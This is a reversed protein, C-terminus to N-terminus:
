SCFLLVTKDKILRSNFFTGTSINLMVYIKLIYILYSTILCVSQKWLCHVELNHTMGEPLCLNSFIIKIEYNDGLKMLCTFSLM